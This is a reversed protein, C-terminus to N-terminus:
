PISLLDIEFILTANGPISGNGSAGYALNPPITLKRKGGVKMGVVGQDWGQIVQGVGLTFSFPQNHDLSSDFKTGNTLWGTYNVTVKDGSKAAAGTGVVEDEIKLGSSTTNAGAAQTAAAQTLSSAATTAEAAQAQRTQRDTNWIRYALFLVFLLLIGAGALIINRQQRQRALRTARRQERLTNRSM